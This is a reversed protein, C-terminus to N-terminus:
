DKCVNTQWDYEKRGGDCCRERGIKSVKPAIICDSKSQIAM